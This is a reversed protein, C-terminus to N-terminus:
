NNKGMTDYNEYDDIDMIEMVEAKEISCECMDVEQNKWPCFQNSYHPRWWKEMTKNRKNQKWIEEGPLPYPLVGTSIYTSIADEIEAMRNDIVTKSIPQIEYFRPEEWRRKYDPSSPLYLIGVRLNPIPIGYHYYASVQLIHEPKAENMFSLSVGSATKYDILWVEDETEIYADATGKWPYARDEVFIPQESIYKIDDKNHFITHIYEHIATGQMLPFTNMWPRDVM